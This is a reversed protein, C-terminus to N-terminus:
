IGCKLYKILNEYNCSDCIETIRVEILGDVNEFYFVRHNITPGNKSIQKVIAVEAIKNNLQKIIDELNVEPFKLKNGEILSIM